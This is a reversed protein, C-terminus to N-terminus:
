FKTFRLLCKEKNLLLLWNQKSQDMFYFVLSVVLSLRIAEIKWNGRGRVNILVFNGLVDRGEYRNGCSDDVVLTLRPSQPDAVLAVFFGIILNLGGFEKLGAVFKQAGSM